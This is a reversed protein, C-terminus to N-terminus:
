RWQDKHDLAWVVCIGQMKRLVCNEKRDTAYIWTDDAFLALQIETTPPPCLKYVFQVPYLGPRFM